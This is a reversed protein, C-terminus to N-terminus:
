ALTAGPLDFRFSTGRGPASEVHLASGLREALDRCLLLGLGSGREGATGITTTRRDIRFLGDLTEGSMGVGTDAVAITVRAGAGDGDAGARVGVEGGAPTFKIANSVLNRLITALMDRNALVHLGGDALVLGVGKERAAGRCGDVAEDIVDALAVDELAVDVSDMQLSAWSFLGEMLAHAQAAAQRIGQARREIAADDHQAVSTSLLDALGLLLQFPNRLDHAIISFLLSKQRNLIDLAASKAEADRRAAELEELFGRRATAYRIARALGSPTLRGKDLHDLAGTRMLRLAIERDTEGTLMMVAQRGGEPSQLDRLLDFADVDPLRYDLLVCDFTAGGAHALGTAGDAAEVLEYRLDSAALARSVAMRDVADDDILLIRIPTTM